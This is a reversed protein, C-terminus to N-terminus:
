GKVKARTSNMLEHAWTMKSRNKSVRDFADLDYRSPVKYRLEIDKENM